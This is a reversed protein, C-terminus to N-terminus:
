SYTSVPWFIPLTTMLILGEPQQPRGRMGARPATRLFNRSRAETDTGV